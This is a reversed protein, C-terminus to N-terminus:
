RAHTTDRRRRSLGLPVLGLALLLSSPEPVAASGTATFAAQLETVTFSTFGVEGAGNDIFNGEISLASTPPAFTLTTFTGTLNSDPNDSRLIASDGNSTGDLADFADLTLSTFGDISLGTFASGTADVNSIALSFTVLEGGNIISAQEGALNPISSTVGIGGTALGIVTSSPTGVPSSTATLTVDFTVGSEMQNMLTQTYIGNSDVSGASATFVLDASCVAPCILIAALILPFRM